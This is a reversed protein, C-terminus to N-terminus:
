VNQLLPENALIRDDEDVKSDRRINDAFSERLEMEDGYEFLAPFKLIENYLATGVLLCAFGFLQEYHFHEWELQVCIILVAATRLSDLVMRHSASMSKTVSIGFFNFFAISVVYGVLSVAIVWSNSIQQLADEADEIPYGGDSGIKIYYMPVLLTSLIVFGFIGECGVAKLAPAGYKGIIKEEVVMQVAVMFQAIIILINGVLKASNSTTGSDDDDTNDDTNTGDKKADDDAYYISVYGVIFVGLVIFMIAIWHYARLKKKLIIVSLMATFVVVASRLMQFVSADTLCLGANMIGTGTMDMTAPIAFLFSTKWSQKKSPIVGKKQSLSSRRSNRWTSIGYVLLCLAEGMFM